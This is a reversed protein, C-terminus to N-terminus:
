IQPAARNQIQIKKVRLSKVGEGRSKWRRRNKDHLTDKKVGFLRKFEIDTLQMDTENNKM